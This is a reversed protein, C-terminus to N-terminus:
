ELSPFSVTRREGELKVNFYQLYRRAVEFDTEDAITGQGSKHATLRVMEALRRVPMSKALQSHSIDIVAMFLTGFHANAFLALRYILAAMVFFAASLLLSKWAIPLRGNLPSSLALLSLFPPEVMSLVARPRIFRCMLLFTDGPLRLLGYLSWLGGAFASAVTCYVAADAVAQQSDVEERLDKDLTLWIRPWYFVSELGYRTKSYTEYSHILNGLRTPFQVYADGDVGMPFSSRKEASAELYHRRIAETPDETNFYKEIAANLECLRREESRLFLRRLPPPWGRRGEVLMYIPMDATSVLWGSIIVALILGVEQHGDLGFLHLVALLLPAMGVVVFTGPLLMRFFLKLGFDLPLKM